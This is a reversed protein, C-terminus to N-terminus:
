IIKPIEIDEAKNYKGSLDKYSRECVEETGLFIVQGIGEHAYVEAQVSTLNTIQITIYGEWEPELPTVNIVIGCRAYTSKGFCIGIVDRPIRFYEVSRGLIFSNPSIKCVKGEFREFDRENIKKPSSYKGKFILFQNSLTFDYGYSSLGFSIGKKIKEPYFPEIMGKEAMKKIWKDSKVM